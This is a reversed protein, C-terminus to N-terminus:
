QFYVDNSRFNVQLSVFFRGKAAVFMARKGPVQCELAQRIGGIHLVRHWEMAVVKVPSLWPIVCSREM